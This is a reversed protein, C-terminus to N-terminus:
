RAYAATGPIAAFLARPAGSVTAELELLFQKRELGGGYGGLAGDEQIVRHCPIIIAVRNRGNARGVARQSNDRGLRAALGSYSCTRGYPIRQLAAWVDAEFRSGPTDLPITFARLDGMFYSALESEAHDLFERPDGDAPAADGGFLAGLEDIEGPLARRDTFELLCLGRSTAGALMPGLPTPILRTPIRGGAVAQPHTFTM